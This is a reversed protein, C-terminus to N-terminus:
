PSKDTTTQADDFISLIREAIHKGINSERDVIRDKFDSM